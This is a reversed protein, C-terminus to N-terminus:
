SAEGLIKWIGTATLIPRGGASLEGEMFILTRTKRVVATRIEITEDPKGASLFDTNLTVTTSPRGEAAEHASFGLAIDALSMLLGGHAAGGGNMHHAQPKFVFRAPEGPAKSVDRLVPGIYANFGAALVPEFGPPVPASM